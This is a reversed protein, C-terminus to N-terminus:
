AGGERITKEGKANTRQTRLYREIEDRTIVIKGNLKGGIVGRDVLDQVEDESMRLWSAAEGADYIMGM